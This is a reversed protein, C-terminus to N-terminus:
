RISVTKERRGEGERGRVGALHQRGVLAQQRVGGGHSPVLACVGDVADQVGEGRGRPADDRLYPPLFPPLSPLLSPHISPPLSATTSMTFVYKCGEGSRVEERGGERGGDRAGLSVGFGQSEGLVVLTQM